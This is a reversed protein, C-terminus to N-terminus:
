RGVSWKLAQVWVAKNQQWVGDFQSVPLPCSVSGVEITIGPVPNDKSQMWDKYGGKGDSGDMRYGTVASISQALSLSAEKVKSIQTDWYIINGMSHYSITAAWAYKDAMSALAQSEPESLPSPGKYGSYSNSVASTVVGDWDAPFNHNLDVGAANSKWISLYQEIPLSTRGEATDRAYSNLITQKLFDSRIGVFGFQSLTVGDPNSMPIFHLATQQFMDRLMMGDYQGTDYHFLALEIQSMMILPTMYERAHIAGQLLIHRPANVNGVIVEYINRGDHSHGVVNVHIKEGYRAQLQQIDAAMQDYTYKEAVKVVSDTVASNLFNNQPIQPAAQLTGDGNEEGVTGPDAANQAQWVAYGPDMPRQNSGPGYIGQSGGSSIGNQSSGPETRNQGGGSGPENQVTGPETGTQGGGSGPENQVTGSEAGTQGGGSGPESQGTGPEAGDQGPVPAVADRGDGPTGGTQMDLNQQGGPGVLQANQGNQDALTVTPSVYGLLVAGALVWVFKRM